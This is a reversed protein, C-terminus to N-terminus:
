LNLLHIRMCKKTLDIIKGGVYADFPSPEPCLQRGAIEVEIHLAQHERLIMTKSKSFHPQM